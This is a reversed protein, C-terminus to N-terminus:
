RISTLVFNVTTENPSIQVVYITDPELTRVYTKETPSEDYILTDQFILNESESEKLEIDVSGEEILQIHVETEENEAVDFRYTEEQSVMEDYQVIEESEETEDQSLCGAIGAAVFAALFNRRSHM